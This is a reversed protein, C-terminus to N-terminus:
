LTNIFEIKNDKLSKIRALSYAEYGADDLIKRGPQFAKEIVIGIGSVQAGGDTVLKIAGKAAEGNALFDDIILVRDDPSIFEKSLTLNYECNKTFSKVTAQYVDTLTSSTQKKLIVLPVNLELSTMLAPAIGSSEITFVKTINNNRFHNAFDKGIEKMLNCDVQHNLFSNVKLIDENIVKGKELIMDELLKM